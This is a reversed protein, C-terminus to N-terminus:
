KKDELPLTVLAYVNGDKDFRELLQLNILKGAVLAYTTGDKGCRKILEPGLAKQMAEKVDGNFCQPILAELAMEDFEIKM